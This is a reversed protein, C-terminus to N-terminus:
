MDKMSRTKMALRKAGSARQSAAYPQTTALADARARFDILAQKAEFQELAEALAGKPSHLLALYHPIDEPTILNIDLADLRALVEAAASGSDDADEDDVELDGPFYRAEAWEHVETASIRGDRWEKLLVILEARTVTHSM